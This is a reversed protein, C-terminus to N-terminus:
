SRSFDLIASLASPLETVGDSKCFHGKNREFVQTAGLKNSFSLSESQPIYEDNDSFITVFGDCHKKVEEIDLPLSYFEAIEPININGSFGGVFVCGGIKVNESLKEIYRLITVCGLSHGVFYDSEMPEGVSERIKRTWESVKPRAPNPMELSEVKFGHRGALLDRRELENKLWPFWHNDPRGDWGHILFVRKVTSM